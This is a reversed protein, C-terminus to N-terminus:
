TSTYQEEVYFEGSMCWDHALAAGTSCWHQVVDAWEQAVGRADITVPSTTTHVKSDYMATNMTRVTHVVM